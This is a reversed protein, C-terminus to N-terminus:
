TAQAAYTAALQSAQAERAEKAAQRAKFTRVVLLIPVIFAYFFIRYSGGEFIFELYIGYSLFGAGFLLNLVRSGVTQGPLTAGVVLLLLGSMILMWAYFDFM